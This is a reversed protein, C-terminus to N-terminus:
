KTRAIKIVEAAIIDDADKIGLGQINRSLKEREDANNFLELVTDVLEDNAKDDKVLKAANHNVLAQANKTQHDEAAHPFPVLVIPKAVLCLESVAIAGARSIVVDAAAYGMDMKSIFETVVIGKDELGKAAEKAEPYTLKGTQWIVQIGKDVFRKLDKAIANNISRAGLSGGVILLTPKETNLKFFEFARPRKGELKVVEKRVPNGTMLIKSPDFYREMGDYAVCVRQVRKSLLRNTIGPFSNQEQILAPIGKGAAARLLPGSAFGGTGVVVDPQFNKLIKNAKLTSSILKFPFALNKLSLSRQIGSIWLGEIKYGAAPVKEMEMRGEAGVFLVEVDPVRAKVANAIAIAPFIHGGTGGGSVIMKLSSM